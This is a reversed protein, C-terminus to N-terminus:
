VCKAVSRGRLCVRMCLRLFFPPELEVDSCVQPLHLPVDTVPSNKEAAPAPTSPGQCGGSGCLVSCGGWGRCVCLLAGPPQGGLATQLPLFYGM